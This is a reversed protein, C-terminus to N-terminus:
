SATQCSPNALNGSLNQSLSSLSHMWEKGIENRINYPTLQEFTCTANKYSLYACGLYKAFPHVVASLARQPPTPCFLLQLWVLIDWSLKDSVNAWLVTFGWDEPFTFGEHDFFLWLERGRGGKYRQIKRKERQLGAVDRWEIERERREGWNPEAVNGWVRGVFLNVTNNDHHYSTLLVLVLSELLQPLSNQNEKTRKGRKKTGQWKAEKTAQRFFVSPSVFISSGVLGGIWGGEEKQGPTVSSNLSSSSILSFSHLAVISRYIYWKVGVEHLPPWGIHWLVGDSPQTKSVFKM